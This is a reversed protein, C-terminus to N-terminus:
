ARAAEIHKATDCYHRFRTVKGAADFTWLHMEEERFEAGSPFRVDFTLESAVQLASGMLDRVEFSKFEWKGIIEFFGRVADRGHREALWPVGARQGRNDAWVEWEVEDALCGLIFAIDGRGFASYIDSVIKINDPV